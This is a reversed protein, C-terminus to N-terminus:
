PSPSLLLSPSPFDRFRRKRDTRRGCVDTRSVRADDNEARVYRDCRNDRNRNPMGQRLQSEASTEPAGLRLPVKKGAYSLQYLLQNTILLDDTRIRRGAGAKAQLAALLSPQWAPTGRLRAHLITM